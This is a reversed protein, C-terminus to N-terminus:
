AVITHYKYPARSYDLRADICLQSPELLYVVERSAIFDRPFVAEILPKFLHLIPTPFLIEIEDREGIIVRGLAFGQLLM